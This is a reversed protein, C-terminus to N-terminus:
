AEEPVLETVVEVHATQPFMDYARVSTVRYAPLRMVDRALTAPDCSMYLLCRPRPGAELLSTVRADLGARPPNVIVVDAPLTAALFEEVRGTVVRSPPGLHRSAEATAEPDLEIATVRPGHGAIGTATVGTGAYADVVSAPHAALAREMVESRALDAVDQNVQGFSEIPADPPGTDAIVHMEGSASRWRVVQLAPCRASFGSAGRWSMGGELVFALRDGALRVTGRLERERPLLEAAAAVESWGLLVRDDTIPCAQLNFVRDSDVRSHLGMVWNTGDRRMALTLRSRYHWPRPSPVVPPVDIKRRAIRSFADRVIQRKAELQVAYELHQLQCGGCDDGDYHACPPHVRGASSKLLRVLEGRGLRGQLRYRVEALDGPATRPVFVALGDARGIGDGGAAISEIAVTAIGPTV